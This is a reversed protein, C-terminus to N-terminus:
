FCMNWGLWCCPSRKKFSKLLFEDLCPTRWLKMLGKPVACLSQELIDWAVWALSALLGWPNFGLPPWTEAVLWCAIVLAGINAFTKDDCKWHPACCLGARCSAPTNLLTGGAIGRRQLGTWAVGGTGGCVAFCAGVQLKLLVWAWVHKQEETDEAVSFEARGWATQLTKRWKVELQREGRSM